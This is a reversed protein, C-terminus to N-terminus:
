GSGERVAGSTLAVPLGTGGLQDGRHGRLILNGERYGRVTTAGEIALQEGSYLPGSAVQFATRALLELSGPNLRSAYNAQVLAAQFHPDPAIIGPVDSGTGSIGFTGVASVAVVQTASRQVWDLHARLVSYSSRGEVEGPALSFPEGLLTESTDRHAVSAGVILSQAASWGGTDGVPTLPLAILTKSLGYEWDQERSRIDLSRLPEAVVAANDASFRGDLSLGDILPASYAITGDTLGSTTGVEGSLVDGPLAFNRVSGGTASRYGGVSPSRSDSASVYNDVRPQPDVVVALTAQGPAGGPNLQANITSVAPDEALLRFQRELATGDLPTESAASLRQSIYSATLGESRGHAWAVTVHGSAPPGVVQGYVLRLDLRGGAQPWDQRALLVGSNVYGNALFTRNIMLLLTVVQSATTPRGILRNREFQRRVWAADLAERPGLEVSLDGIALRQAAAGKARPPRAIAPEVSIRLDSIALSPGAGIRSGAPQPPAPSVVRPAPAAFVPHRRPSPTPGRQRDLRSHM